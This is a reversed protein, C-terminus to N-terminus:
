LRISIQSIRNSMRLPIEEIGEENEEQTQPDENEEKQIQPAEEINHEGENIVITEGARLYEISPFTFINSPEKANIKEWERSTYNMKKFHLMEQSIFNIILPIM